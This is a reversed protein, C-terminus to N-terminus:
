DGSEGVQGVPASPSAPPDPPSPSRGALALVLEKIQAFVNQSLGILVVSDFALLWFSPPTRTAGWGFIALGLLYAILRAWHPPSWQVYETM